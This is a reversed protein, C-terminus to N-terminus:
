YRRGAAEDQQPPCSSCPPTDGSGRRLPIFPAPSALWRRARDLSGHRVLSSRIRARRTSRAVHAGSNEGFQICESRPLSPPRVIGNGRRLDTEPRRSPHTFLTERVCPNSSSKRGGLLIPDRHLPPSLLPSSLLELHRSPPHRETAHTSSDTRVMRDRSVGDSTERAVAPIRNRAFKRHRLINGQGEHHVPVVSEMTSNQLNSSQM